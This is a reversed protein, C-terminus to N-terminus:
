NEETPIAECAPEKYKRKGYMTDKVCDCIADADASLDVVCATKDDKIHCGCTVQEDAYASMLGQSSALVFVALLKRKLEM